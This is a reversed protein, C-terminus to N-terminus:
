CDVSYSDWSFDPCICEDENTNDYFQESEGDECSDVSSHLYLECTGMNSIQFCDHPNATTECTVDNAGTELDTSTVCDQDFIEFDWGRVLPILVVLSTAFVTPLNFKM